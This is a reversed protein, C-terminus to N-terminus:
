ININTITGRYMPLYFYVKHKILTLENNEDEADLNIIFM